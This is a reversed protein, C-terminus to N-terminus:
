LDLVITHHPIGISTLYGEGEVVWGLREYFDLATDRGHAWLVSAGAARVHAVAATVLERGVGGGQADPAVAMGRLQWAEAGPRAVTPSPLLTAIAILRGGADYAGLHVAGPEHDEPFDVDAEPDDGRLVQRRLDYTAEAPVAAITLM